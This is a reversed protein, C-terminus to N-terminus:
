INNYYKELRRYWDDKMMQLKIGDLIWEQYELERSVMFLVIKNINTGYLHNHADLYAIGQYYYDIVYEEKKPKNTSKNDMIAEDGDHIGVLDSTGAYLNPYYLGVEVGWVENVKSLGKDIIVDAMNKAQQRIINSGRPRDRNEIYAEVHSHM